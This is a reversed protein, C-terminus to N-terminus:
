RGFQKFSPPGTPSLGGFTEVLTPQEREFKVGGLRVSYFSHRNFCQRLLEAIDSGAVERIAKGFHLTALESEARSSEARISEPRIEKVRTLYM